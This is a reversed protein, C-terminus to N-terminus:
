RDELLEFFGELKEGIEEKTTITPDVVDCDLTLMPIDLETLTDKFLKIAACSHRGKLIHADTTIIKGAVMEKDVIVTDIEGLELPTDKKVTIWGDSRYTLVMVEM